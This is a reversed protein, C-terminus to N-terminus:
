QCWPCVNEQEKKSYVTESKCEWCRKSLIFDPTMAQIGGPENFRYVLVAFDIPYWQKTDGPAYVEYDKGIVQGWHIERDNDIYTVYEYLSIDGYAYRNPPYSDYGILALSLDM